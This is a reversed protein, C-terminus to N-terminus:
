VAPNSWAETSAEPYQGVTDPCPCVDPPAPVANDSNDSWHLRIETLLM